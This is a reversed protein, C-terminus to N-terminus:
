IAQNFAEVDEGIEIARLKRAVANRRELSECSCGIEDIEEDLMRLYIRLKDKVSKVEKGKKKGQRRGRM